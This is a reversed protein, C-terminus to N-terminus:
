LDDILNVLIDKPNSKRADRGGENINTLFRSMPWIISVVKGIVLAQSIAGFDNSDISHFSNDGEVWLHNRPVTLQPKPYPPSNTSITDGQLGVVRKTLIKEPDIPSRIFIVDGRKLTNPKKVGFKQLLVWDNTTSETGPNFTPSMSSGSIRYPQYGHEAFTIIVPIWTLGILSKHVNKPIRNYYYPIGNLVTSLKENISTSAKKFPSSIKNYYPSHFLQKSIKHKNLNSWIVSFRSM